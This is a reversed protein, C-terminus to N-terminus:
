GSRASPMEPQIAHREVDPYVLLNDKASTSDQKLRRYALSLLLEVAVGDSVM